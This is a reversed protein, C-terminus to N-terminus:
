EDREEKKKAAEAKTTAIKQQEAFKAFGLSRRRSNQYNALYNHYVEQRQALPIEQWAYVDRPGGKKVIDLYQGPQQKDFVDPEYPWQQTAKQRLQADSPHEIDLRWHSKHHVQGFNFSETNAIMSLEYQGYHDPQSDILGNDLKKLVDWQTVFDGRVLDIIFEAHKSKATVQIKFNNPYIFRGQYRNHYTADTQYDLALGYYTQYNLLKQYDNGGPFNERIYNINQRDIWYRLLHIQQALLALEGEGQAYNALTQSKFVKQIDQCLLALFPAHPALQADFHYAGQIQLFHYQDIEAGLQGLLMQLRQVPGKQSAQYMQTYFESGIAHIQHWMHAKQKEIQELSTLKQQYLYQAAKRQSAQDWGDKSLLQVEKDSFQISGRYKDLLWSFTM